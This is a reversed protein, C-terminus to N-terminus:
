RLEIIGDMGSLLQIAERVNDKIGRGSGIAWDGGLREVPWNMAVFESASITIEKVIVGM